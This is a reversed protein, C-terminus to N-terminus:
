ARKFLCEDAKSVSHKALNFTITQYKCYLIMSDIDLLLVLIQMDNTM